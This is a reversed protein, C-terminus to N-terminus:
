NNFYMISLKTLKQIYEFIERKKADNLTRAEEKVVKLCELFYKINDEGMDKIDENYDKELFYKYDGKLIVESYPATIYIFWLQIIKSGNFRFLMKSFQKLYSIDSKLKILNNETYELYNNYEKKFTQLVFQKNSM